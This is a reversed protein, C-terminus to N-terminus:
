LCPSDNGLSTDTKLLLESDAEAFYSRVNVSSTGQQAASNKSKCFHVYFEKHQETPEEFLSTCFM